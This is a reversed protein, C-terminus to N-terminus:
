HITQLFFIHVFPINAYKETMLKQMAVLVHRYAEFYGATAEVMLYEPSTTLWHQRPIIRPSVKPQILNLMM